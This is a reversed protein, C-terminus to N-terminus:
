YGKETDEIEQTRESEKNEKLVLETQGKYLLISELNKYPGRVKFILMVATSDRLVYVPSLIGSGVWGDPEGLQSEIDDLSSGLPINEFDEVTLKRDSIAYEMDWGGVRITM